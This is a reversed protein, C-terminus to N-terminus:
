DLSYVGLRLPFSLSGGAGDASDPFSLFSPTDWHFAAIVVLQLALLNTGEDLELEGSPFAHAGVM